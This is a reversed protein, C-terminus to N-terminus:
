INFMYKFTILKFPHWIVPRGPAVVLRPKARGTFMCTGRTNAAFLAQAKYTYHGRKGIEAHRALIHRNQSDTSYANIKRNCVDL